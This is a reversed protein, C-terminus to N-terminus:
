CFSSHSVAKLGSIVPKKCPASLICVYVDVLCVAVIFSDTCVYDGRSADSIAKFGDEGVKKGSHVARGSKSVIEGAEIAKDTIQQIAETKKGVIIHTLKQLM